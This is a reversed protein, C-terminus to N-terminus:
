RDVPVCLRVRAAELSTGYYDLRHRLRRYAADGADIAAALEQTAHEAGARAALRERQRRAYDDAWSPV